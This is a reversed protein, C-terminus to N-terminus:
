LIERMNDQTESRGYLHGKLTLLYASYQGSFEPDPWLSQKLPFPTTDVSSWTYIPIMHIPFICKKYVTYMATTLSIKVNLYACIFLCKVTSQLPISFVGLTHKWLDNLYQNTHIRMPLNGMYTFINKWWHDYIFKSHLNGTVVALGANATNILM